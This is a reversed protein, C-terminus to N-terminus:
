QWMFTTAVNSNIVSTDYNYYFYKWIKPLKDTVLSKVRNVGENRVHM